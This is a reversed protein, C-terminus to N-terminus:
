TDQKNKRQEYYKKNYERIQDKHTERYRKKQEKLKDPNQKKWIKFRESPSLRVKPEEENTNM